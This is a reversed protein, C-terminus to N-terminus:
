KTVALGHSSRVRAGATIFQCVRVGQKVLFGSEVWPLIPTQREASKRCLGAGGWGVQLGWVATFSGCQSTSESIRVRNRSFQSKYSREGHVTDHSSM